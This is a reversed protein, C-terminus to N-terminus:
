GGSFMSFFAVEQGPSVWDTDFAMAQDVASRVDSRMIAERAGDKLGALAERLESLRLGCAPTEVSLSQGFVDAIRGFFLVRMVACAPATSPAGSSAAPTLILSM